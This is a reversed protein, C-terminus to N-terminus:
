YGIAQAKNQKKSTQNYYDIYHNFKGVHEAFDIGAMTIHVNVGQPLSQKVQLHSINGGAMKWHYLGLVFFIVAFVFWLLNLWIM